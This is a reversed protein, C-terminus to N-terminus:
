NETKRLHKKLNLNEMQIDIFKKILEETQRPISLDMEVCLVKYKRFLNEEIRIRVIKESM